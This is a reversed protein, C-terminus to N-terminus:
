THHLAHTHPDGGRALRILDEVSVESMPVPLKYSRPPGAGDVLAIVTELPPCGPESCRLETVLVTTSEPLGFADVAWQKIAAPRTADHRREGFAFLRQNM